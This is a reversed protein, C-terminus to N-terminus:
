LEDAELLRLCKILTWRINQGEAAQAGALRWLRDPDINTLQATRQHQYDGHLPARESPVYEYDGQVQMVFARYKGTSLIVLDGPKMTYRFNWLQIGSVPANHLAPALERVARSIEKPSAYEKERLDGLFGWGLAIRGSKRSWDAVAEPDEHHTALRWVEM